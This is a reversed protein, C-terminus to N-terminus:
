EPTPPHPHCDTESSARSTTSTAGGNSGLPMVASVPAVMRNSINHTM